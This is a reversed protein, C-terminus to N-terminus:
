RVARKRRLRRILCCILDAMGLLMGIRILWLAATNLRHEIAYDAFTREASAVYIQPYVGLVVALGDYWLKEFYRNGLPLYVAQVFQFYREVERSPTHGITGATLSEAYFPSRNDKRTNLPLIALNAANAPTLDDLDMRTGNLVPVGGEFVDVLAVAKEGNLRYPMRLLTHGRGNLLGNRPLLHIVQYPIHKGSLFYAAGLVLNSCNGKGALMAEQYRKEPHITYLTQPSTQYPIAALLRSVDATAATSLKPVPGPRETISVSKLFGVPNVLLPGLSALWFVVVCARMLRLPRIGKQPLIVQSAM